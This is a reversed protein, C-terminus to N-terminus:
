IVVDFEVKDQLIGHAITLVVHWPGAMHFLMGKARFTDHSTQIVEPTTVMGHNHALMGADISLRADHSLPKLREALKIDFYFYDNVPIPSTGPILEAIYDHGKSEVRFRTTEANFTPSYAPTNQPVTCSTLVSVLLLGRIVNHFIM